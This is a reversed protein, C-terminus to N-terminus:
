SKFASAYNSPILELPVYVAWALLIAFLLFLIKNTHKDPVFQLAGVALCLGIPAIAPFLYRGQYCSANCGLATYLVLLETAVVFVAPLTLMLRSGSENVRRALGSLAWVYGLLAVTCFGLMAKYQWEPLVVGMWGFVGWFSTFQVHAFMLIDGLTMFSDRLNAAFVQRYVSLGLLDGYLDLNRVFWWSSSALVVLSARFAPRAYQFARGQVAGLAALLFVTIFLFAIGNVKSLAAVSLFCGLYWGYRSALPSKLIRVLQWWAATMACVLLNDNNVAASIFLFQPNLATLLGAMLAVSPKDPMLERGIQMTLFITIAGLLVSMLRMVHVALSYGRWPFLEDASHLANIQNASTGPARMFYPNGTWRGTTDSLNLLSTPLAALLYYLPPHHAGALRGVEQVPLRRDTVLHFVYDTHMNEDPAEYLPNAVSYYAGLVIFLIVVSITMASNNSRTMHM